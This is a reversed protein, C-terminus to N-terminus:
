VTTTPKPVQPAPPPKVNEGRLVFKPPQLDLKVATAKGGGQKKAVQIEAQSRKQSFARLQESTKRFEQVQVQTVPKLSYVPNNYNKIPVVVNVNTTQKQQEILTRPPRPATGEARAVYTARLSQDWRPNDRHHWRYYSYLPDPFRGGLRYDVWPRYGAQAYRAEYYDGFFYHHW